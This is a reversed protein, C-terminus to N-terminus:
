RLALSHALHSKSRLSSKTLKLIKSNNNSMMVILYAVASELVTDSPEIM